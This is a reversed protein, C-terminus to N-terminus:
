KKSLYISQDQRKVRIPLIKEMAQLFPDIDAADFQGSLTQKALSQDIFVFHVDHYRELEATVEALPTHDFVLHGEIWGTSQEINIKEIPQLDGTKNLRRCFGDKLNEKFGGVRNSLEVEGELVSVVSGEPRKRVAFVTGIDKIKLDGALVRFPRMRQHSVTFLAEGEQLEVQRRLWSMRVSLHSLANLEVHSRDALDISLREGLGTQYVVTQANYDQWGVGLAILLLLSLTGARMSAQPRSNRAAALGPIKTAKIDDLNSWIREAEAYAKRHTESQALWIQFQAREQDCCRESQLQVFWEVAQRLIRQQSKSYAPNM